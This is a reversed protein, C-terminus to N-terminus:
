KSSASQESRLQRLKVKTREHASSLMFAIESAIERNSFIDPLNTFRNDLNISYNALHCDCMSRAKTFDEPTVPFAEGGFKARLSECLEMLFVDSSGDLGKIYRTNTFGWKTATMMIDEATFQHETIGKLLLYLSPNSRDDLLNDYLPINFQMAAVFLADRSYAQFSHNNHHERLLAIMRAAKERKDTFLFRELGYYFVFVYGTPVPSRVDTLWNLYIFRQKPTLAHYSPYYQINEMMDLPAVSLDIEDSKILLSPENDSYGPQREDEIWLLERVDAPIDALLKEFLESSKASIGKPTDSRPIPADQSVSVSFLQAAKQKAQERRRRKTEVTSVIMGTILLVVGLAFSSLAAILIAKKDEQPLPADTTAMLIIGAWAFIGGFVVFPIYHYKQQEKKKM